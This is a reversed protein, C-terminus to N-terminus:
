IKVMKIQLSVTEMKKIKQVLNTKIVKLVARRIKEAEMEVELNIQLNIRNIERKNGRKRVIKVQVREM